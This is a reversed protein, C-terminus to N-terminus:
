GKQKFIVKNGSKLLDIAESAQQKTFYNCFRNEFVNIEGGLSKIYNYQAKSAGYRVKGATLFEIAKM